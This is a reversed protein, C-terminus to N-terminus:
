KPSINLIHQYDKEQKQSWQVRFYVRKELETHSSLKCLKKMDKQHNQCSKMFRRQAWLVHTDTHPLCVRDAM